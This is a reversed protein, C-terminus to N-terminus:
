SKERVWVNCSILKPSNQFEIIAMEAIKTLKTCKLRWFTFIEYIDFNLAQSHTLIASKASRSNELISKVYFRLSLFIMFNGCQTRTIVRYALFCASYM